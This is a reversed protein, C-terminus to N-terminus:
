TTMCWLTIHNPSVCSRPIILSYFSASAQLNPLDPLRRAQERMTIFSPYNLAVKYNPLSESCVNTSKTLVLSLYNM